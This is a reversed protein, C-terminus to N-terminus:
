ITSSDENNCKNWLKLSRLDKWDHYLDATLSQIKVDFREKSYVWWFKKDGIFPVDTHRM